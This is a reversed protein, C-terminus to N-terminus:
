KLSIIKNGQWLAEVSEKEKQTIKLSNLMSKATTKKVCNSELEIDNISKSMEQFDYGLKSITTEGILHLVAIALLNYIPDKFTDQWKTISNKNPKSNKDIETNDGLRGKPKPHNGYNLLNQSYNLELINCLRHIELDPNQILNEYRVEHLNPYKSDIATALYKPSRVLDDSHTSLNNWNKGVWTKLVSSLVSLPNRLLILITSQPFIEVLEPLIYYYRPTKDLFLKANHSERIKRYWTSTMQRVGEIYDSRKNPLNGIFDELAQHAYKSDFNSSLGQKKLAYVLNLMIWPEATSYIDKHTNLIRQTLTSGSRPQSVLFIIDDGLSGQFPVTKNPKVIVPPSLSTFATKSNVKPPWYRKKLISPTEINASAQVLLQWGQVTQSKDKSNTRFNSKHHHITIIQHSPNIVEMKSEHALYAIRNDCGLQGLYFDSNQIPCPSKFIWSDQSDGIKNRFRQYAGNDLVEHRNLAIFKNQINSYNIKGLSSDFEIDTNAIICINGIHEKNCLNLIDQFSPRSKLQTVKLKESQFPLVSQDSILVVIKDIFRNNINASIANLYEQHRTECEPVFYELFMVTKIATNKFESIAKKGSTVLPELEVNRVITYRECISEHSTNAIRFDQLPFFDSEAYIQNIWDDCFWNKIQPHFYYGFIEMHTRSVFTQTLVAKNGNVNRPGTVGLRNNKELTSICQDLWNADMFRMDDGVQYFYDSGEEYAKSFLHNWMAVVNGPEIDHFVTVTMSVQPNPIQEFLSKLNNQNYIADGADVGIYFLFQINSNSETTKIFSPIFNIALFSDNISRWDTKASTAPM